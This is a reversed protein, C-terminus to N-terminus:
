KAQDFRWKDPSIKPLVQCNKYVKRIIFHREVSTLLM